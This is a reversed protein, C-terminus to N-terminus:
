HEARKGMRPISFEFFIHGELGELISKLHNIEFTWADRQRTELAPSHGEVLYGLVQAVPLTLFESIPSDFYARKLMSLSRLSPSQDM